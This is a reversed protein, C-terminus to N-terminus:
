PKSWEDKDFQKVAFFEETDQDKVKYVSAFKGEGLKSLVKFKSHFDTQIAWKALEKKWKKYLKSDKTFIEDHIDSQQM